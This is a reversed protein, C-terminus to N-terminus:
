GSKQHAVFRATFLPQHTCGNEPSSGDRRRQGGSQQGLRHTGGGGPFLGLTIEPLGIRAHEEAIRIDCCLAVECGGGLTLGNLMAIVPKEFADIRNLIGHTKLFKEKLGDQGILQPFEKIDAGAAFVKDGHGTVIVAGVEPDTGLEEFVGDLENFVGNSIVNMPPNHITVVAYGDMKEVNLATTM